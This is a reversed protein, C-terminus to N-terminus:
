LLRTRRRAQKRKRKKHTLFNFVNRTQLNRIANLTNTAKRKTNETRTNNRRINNGTNLNITDQKRRTKKQTSERKRTRTNKKRKKYKQNELVQFHTHMETVM